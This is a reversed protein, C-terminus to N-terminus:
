SSTKRAHELGEGLARLVLRVNDPTCNYGLLGIRWIKGAQAGLGGAIEVLYKKMAYDTVDKWKVDSPVVVGTVCPLRAEKDKVLLDLGLKQLGEHLMEACNKHISWSNELGVDALRALGERLAYVSSIPGTHHYKRGEGDCGWYNALHNM